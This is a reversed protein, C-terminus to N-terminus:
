RTSFLANNQKKLWLERITKIDMREKMGPFEIEQATGSYMVAKSIVGSSIDIWITGWYQETGSTKMGIVEVDVLNDIANFNIVAHTKNDLITIGTLILEIKEHSYNGIDAMQFEGVIKPIIYPENLSLKNLYNWAFDEIAMMDWILNKSFVGNADYPFEKFNEKKIMEESPYYEFDEIYMQKTKNQYVGEANSWNSIYVEDWKVKESLMGRFYNGHIKTKGIFEGNSKRNTYVATMTFNNASTNISSSDLMKLNRLEDKIIIQSFILNNSLIFIIFASTIGIRKISKM